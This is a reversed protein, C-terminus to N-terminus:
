KTGGVSRLNRVSHIPRSHPRRRGDPKQEDTRMRAARSAPERSGAEAGSGSACLECLPGRETEHNRDGPLILRYCDMCHEHRQAIWAEDNATM